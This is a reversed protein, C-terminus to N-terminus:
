PVRLADRRQTFAHVECGRGPVVTFSLEYIPIKNQGFTLKLDGQHPFKVEPSLSITYSDGDIVEDWLVIKDELMKEFFTDTVHKALHQYHCKLIERRSNRNASFSKALYRGFYKTAASPYRKIFPRINAQNLVRIVEGHETIIVAIPEALVFKKFKSLTGVLGGDSARYILDIGVFISKLFLAGDLMRSWVSTM